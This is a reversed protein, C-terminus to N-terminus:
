TSLEVRWCIDCKSMVGCDNRARWENGMEKRAFLLPMWLFSAGNQLNQDYLLLRSERLYVNERGHLYNGLVKRQKWSEFVFERERSRGEADHRSACDGRDNVDYHLGCYNGDRHLGQGGHGDDDGGDGDDRSGLDMGILGESSHSM